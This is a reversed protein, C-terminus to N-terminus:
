SGTKDALLYLARKKVSDETVDGDLTMTSLGLRDMLASLEKLYARYLERFSDQSFKDLDTSVYWIEVDSREFPSLIDSLREEYEQGTVSESQQSRARAWAVNGIHWQEIFVVAEAENFLSLIKADRNMEREVVLADFFPCSQWHDPAGQKRLDDFISQYYHPDGFAAADASIIKGVIKYAGTLVIVKNAM